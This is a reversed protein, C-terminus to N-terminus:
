LMQNGAVVDGETYTLVEGTRTNQRVYYYPAEHRLLEWGASQLAAALTADGGSGAFFASNTDFSRVGNRNNEQVIAGYASDLLVERLAAFTDPKEATIRALQHEVQGWFDAPIAPTINSM